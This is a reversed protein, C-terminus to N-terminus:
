ECHPTKGTLSFVVNTTPAPNSGVDGPDFGPISARAGGLLLGRNQGSKRQNDQFVAVTNLGALGNFRAM